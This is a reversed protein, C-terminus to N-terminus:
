STSRNQAAPEIHENCRRSYLPIQTLGPRSPSSSLPNCGVHRNGIMLRTQLAHRALDESSCQSIQSSAEAAGTGCHRLRREPPGLIM